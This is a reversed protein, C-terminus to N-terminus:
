HMCPPPVAQITTPETARVPVPLRRAKIEASISLSCPPCASFPTSGTKGSGKFWLRVRASLPTQTSCRDCTFTM